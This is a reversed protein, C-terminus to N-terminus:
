ALGHERAFRTAQSRSTVGLKSYISRLHAHVTHFSVTLQTAMQGYTLGQVLLSLVELERETLNYTNASEPDPTAPLQPAAPAGPLEELALAYADDLPMARGEAWAAEWADPDMQAAAREVNLKYVLRQGGYM